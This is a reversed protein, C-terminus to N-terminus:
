PSPNAPQTPPAITHATNTANPAPVRQTFRPYHFKQFFAHLSPPIPPPTATSQTPTHLCHQYFSYWKLLSDTNLKLHEDLPTSFLMKQDSDSFQTQTAYAQHIKPLLLQRQKHHAEQPTSGYIDTNRHTWLTTSIDWLAQVLSSSIRSSSYCHPLRRLHTYHDHSILWKTAIRGRLLNDWGISSQDMHAQQLLQLYHDNTHTHWPFAPTTLPHIWSKIGQLLVSTMLPSVHLQTLRTHFLLLTQQLRQHSQPCRFIHDWDEHLQNCRPCRHDHFVARKRMETGTAWLKFMTKITLKRQPLSLRGLATELSDWHVLSSVAPTWQEKTQIYHLLAADHVAHRLHLDIKSTYITMSSLRLYATTSPFIPISTPGRCISCTHATDAAIDCMKNVRLPLPIDSLEDNDDAQHSKVHNRQITFPLSQEVTHIERIVDSHKLLHYKLSRHRTHQLRRLVGQNDMYHQITYPSLIPHTLLLHNIAARLLYLCGLYGYAEVRFSSTPESRSHSAVFTDLQTSSQIRSSYTSHVGKCSGDSALVFNGHLISHLLNTEETRTLTVTHGIIWKEHSPLQRLRHVLTPPPPPPFLVTRERYFYSRPHYNNHRLQLTIPLCVPPLTPSTGHRTVSHRIRGTPIYTDWIPGKKCYIISTTPDIQTHWTQTPHVDNWSTLPQRLAYNTYTFCRRLMVTWLKWALMGPNAQHPWHMTSDRLIPLNPLYYEPSILKGDSTTIDSLYFVQLFLRVANIRLLTIGSYHKCAEEMLPIDHLRQPLLQMTACTVTAKLDTLYQWTTSIWSAPLYQHKSKTSPFLKTSYSLVPQRFGLHLYLYDLNLLMCKGVLDNLQLHGILHHLHTSGQLDWSTPICAGGYRRSAHFIERKTHRNFGTLTKLYPLFIRDLQSCMKRSFFTGSFCYAIKPHIYVPLVIDAESRTLHIKQLDQIITRLRDAVYHYQTDTTGSPSTPLGLTKLASTAEVRHIIQPTPSNGPLISISGPTDQITSLTPIGDQWQWSIYYWYCKSLNLQGGSLFLLKEWSQARAAMRRFCDDDSLLSHFIIDWLDTDDVFADIIKQLEETHLPNPIGPDPYLANYATILVISVALWIAPAAGSGQLVGYITQLFHTFFQDSIGHQTKVHYEATRLFLLKFKSAQTPLGLRQCCIQSLAPLVRDYCATADNNFITAQSRTSRILDFSLVKLLLASTALASPVSGFQEKPINNDLYAQRVLRKGWILRFYMNLDAEILQIVRLKAIDYNGPIKCLMVQVVKKWRQLIFGHTVGLNLLDVVRKTFDDIPLLAKYIGYHRGSMSSSTGESVNKIGQKFDPLSITHDLTTSSSQRMNTLFATLEPPPDIFYSLDNNLISHFAPSHHLPPLYDCYPPSAFPTDHAQHFHQQNRQLLAAFLRNPDTVEEITGNETPRLIKPIGSSKPGKLAYSLKSYLAKKSEHRLISQVIHARTPQGQSNFHQIRSNLFQIRHQFAHKKIHRLTSWAAKLQTTIYHLGDHFTPNFISPIPVPILNTRILLKKYRNWTRVATQADKLQLSWPHSQYVRKRTLTEAELVTDTLITDIKNCISEIELKDTTLSLSQDLTLLHSNNSLSTTVLHRFRKISQENQIWIGRSPRSVLNAKKGFISSNLDLYIAAHDSSAGYSSNLIGVSTTHDLVFSCGLILDLRNGKTHTATPTSHKDRLIDHLHCCTLFDQFENDIPTLNADLGIM